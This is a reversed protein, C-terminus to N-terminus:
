DKKLTISQIMHEVHDKYKPYYHAKTGTYLILHLHDKIIAGIVLGQKELGDKTTLDMEFRFGPLSGFRDPRLNVARVKQAGVTSFSDVVFEMVEGPTMHKKFAPRKDKDGGKFLVDGDELGKVFHVAQLSEGDVTWIDMKGESAASWSIQPDVTYLDGIVAKKAEIMSYRACGFLIFLLVGSITRRRM